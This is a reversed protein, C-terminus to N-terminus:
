LKYASGSTPIARGDSKSVGAFKHECVTVGEHVAGAAFVFKLTRVSGADGYNRKSADRIKLAALPHVVDCMHRFEVGVRAM